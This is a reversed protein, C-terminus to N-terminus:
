EDIQISRLITRIEERKGNKEDQRSGAEIVFFYDGHPVIWVEHTAPFTRGDSVEMTFHMRAHASDIGAITAMLPEQVVVVDKLLREINPILYKMLEVPTSGKFDGYPMLGIEVSLNVDDYPEKYKNLIVLPASSYKRMAAQFEQDSFKIAQRNELNQAATVYVWDAPKSLRLGATENVFSNSDRAPQASLVETSM